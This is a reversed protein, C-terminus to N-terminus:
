ISENRLAFYDQEMQLLTQIVQKSLERGARLGTLETQPQILRLAVDFREGKKPYRSKSHQARGRLYLCFVPLDQYGSLLQGVGYDFSKADVRGTDSRKGEPFITIFDGLLLLADMKKRIKKMEEVSGTRNIPLCKGLYCFIRYLTKEIVHSREPFNWSLRCFNRLYFWLSGLALHVLLSDVYTLHNVCIIAPGKVKQTLGKFERRITKINHIRFKQLVTFRFWIYFYVIPLLFYDITRQFFLHSNKM